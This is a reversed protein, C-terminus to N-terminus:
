VFQLLNYFFCRGAFVGYQINLADIRRALLTVKGHYQAFLCVNWVYIVYPSLAEFPSREEKKCNDLFVYFCKCIYVLTILNACVCFFM